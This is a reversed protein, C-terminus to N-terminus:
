WIIEDIMNSKLYKNVKLFIDNKINIESLSNNEIIMQRNKDIYDKFTENGPQLFMFVINECEKNILQVITRIFHRWFISHNEANKTTLSTNLMLIGNNSWYSMTEDFWQDNEYFTNNVCSMISKLFIPPLHGANVGYSLGNSKFNQYPELGFCVVKVDKFKTETFAKFLNEKKPYCEVNDKYIEEIFLALNDMYESELLPKLKEAIISNTKGTIRLGKIAESFLTNIKNAEKLQYFVSGLVDKNFYVVICKAKLKNIGRYYVEDSLWVHPLNAGLFVMDGAEFHEVSNGIIRKGYSEIIYVLELEPHFHFPSQFFPEERKQVSVHSNLRPTIETKEIKMKLLNVM